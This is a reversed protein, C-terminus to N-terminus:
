YGNKIRNNREPTLVTWFFLTPPRPPLFASLSMEFEPFGGASLVDLFCFGLFTIGIPSSRPTELFVWTLPLFASPSRVFETLGNIWCCCDKFFFFFEEIATASSRNRWLWSSHTFDCFFDKSKSKSWNKFFMPSCSPITM